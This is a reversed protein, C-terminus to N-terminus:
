PDPLRTPITAVVSYTRDGAAGSSRLRLSVFADVMSLVHNGLIVSVDKVSRRFADNSGSITRKYLDHELQANRWSWRFDPKVAREEYYELARQYPISGPLPAVSADDWFTDRARRWISGNFTSEDLEPQIDVDDSADYVGSEIFKEMREYYDFDGIPLETSFLSRAVDAAITRYGERERRADARHRAFRIWGYAEVAMYAAFRNEGMRLQGAGPIVASFLPTMWVPLFDAGMAARQVNAPEGSLSFSLAAAGGSARASALLISQPM